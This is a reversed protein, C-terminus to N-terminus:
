RIAGAIDILSAGTPCRRGDERSVVYQKACAPASTPKRSRLWIDRQARQCGAQAPAARQTQRTDWRLEGTFGVETPLSRSWTASASKSPAALNVPDAGDYREAALVIGEAADRVFLFERTPSGDGFLTVEGAGSEQADVMKRIVAPIVHSSKLDFKDHPRILQGAACHIANFGYEQRYAQSQVLLM